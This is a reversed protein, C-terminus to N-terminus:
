VSPDACSLSLHCLFFLSLCCSHCTRMRPMSGGETMQTMQTFQSAELQFRPPTEGSFRRVPQAREYQSETAQVVHDAVGVGVHDAGVHLEAQKRVHTETLRPKAGNISPTMLSPTFTLYHELEAQQQPTRPEESGLSAPIQSVDSSAFPDLSLNPEQYRSSLAAPVHRKTDAAHSEPTSKSSMGASPPTDINPLRARLASSTLQELPPRRTTPLPSGVISPLAPPKHVVEQPKPPATVDDGDDEDTSYDAPNKTFDAVVRPRQQLRICSHAAATVTHVSSLSVLICLLLLPLSFVLSFPSLDDTNMAISPNWAWDILSPSFTSSVKVELSAAPHSAVPMSTPLTLNAATSGESLQAALHACPLWMELATGVM